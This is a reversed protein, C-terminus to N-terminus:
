NLQKIMRVYTPEKYGEHHCYEAITYGRKLYYDVLKPIALRVGVLVKNYGLTCAKREIMEILTNGIGLNRFEPLVALRGMYLSDGDRKWLACGIAKMNKEAIIAGGENLKLGITQLTEKNAGSPPDLKEQYQSFADHILNVLISIDSIEADRLILEEMSYKM